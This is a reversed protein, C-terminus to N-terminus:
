GVGCMMGCGVAFLLECRREVVFLCCDVFLVRCVVCSASCVVCLSSWVVCWACNVVRLLGGYRVYCLLDRLSCCFSDFLM